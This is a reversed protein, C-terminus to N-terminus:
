HISDSAAHYKPCRACFPLRSDEVPCDRQVNLMDIFRDYLFACFIVEGNPSLIVVLVQQLLLAVRLSFRMGTRGIRRYRIGVSIRCFGYQKAM